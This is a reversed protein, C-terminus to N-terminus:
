KQRSHLFGRTNVNIKRTCGFIVPCLHLIMGAWTGGGGIVVVVASSSVDTGLEEFIALTTPLALLIIENEVRLPM